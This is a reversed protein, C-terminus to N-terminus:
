RHVYMHAHEAQDVHMSVTNENSCPGRATHVRQKPTYVPTSCNCLCHMDQQPM